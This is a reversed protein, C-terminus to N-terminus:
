GWKYSIKFYLYDKNEFVDFGKNKERGDLLVTGLTFHWKYSYDYVLQLRFMDAKNNLDHMWFFSPVLKNHFYSTNIMLTTTYNDDELNAIEYDHPYNLIKQHYFQPSIMFYTRPNLLDIRVKWDIGLAWRLEDLKKFTNLSTAFTNDFAYFTELLILPAVDGLASSRMFPLDRSFTAGAFRFLPYRGEMTSHLIRNSDPAVEFRPLATMDPRMVPANDRGYFYNLTIIADKVVSKIRFAYEYGEDDWEQPEKINMNSSGIYAERGPGLPAVINPSWIGAEDNGMLMQNPIFDANPNFIFELGVDQLWGTTIQPYYEARILWIPIITTEFEVDAMGRRTDLPNIQDMLRFGIMEGWSVIQKGVRFYCNGPTWSLHIEKLLQWYEDDVFLEDRSKFFKKDTWSKDDHKLEYIWDVTLMSAAYLKLNDTFTYDFELFLNMLAAHIDRETDYYDKNHLSFAAGQTVYGFLNLTKGGVIFQKAMAPPSMVAVAVMTVLLILVRKKKM